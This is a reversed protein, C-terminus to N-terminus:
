AHRTRALDAMGILCYCFVRKNYLYYASDLGTLEPDGNARSISTPSTKPALMKLKTLGTGPTGEKTDKACRGSSDGSIPRSNFSKPHDGCSLVAMNMVDQVSEIAGFFSRPVDGPVLLPENVYLSLVRSFLGM